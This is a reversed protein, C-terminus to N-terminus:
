AWVTLHVNVSEISFCVNTPEDEGMSLGDDNVSCLLMCRLLERCM